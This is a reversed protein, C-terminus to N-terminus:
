ARQEEAAVCHCVGLHSCIDGNCKLYYGHCCDCDKLDERFAADQEKIYGETEMQMICFCQDMDRCFDSATCMYPFGNCCTCDKCEQVFEQDNEEDSDEYNEMMGMFDQMNMNNGGFQNMGFQNMGGFQNMMNQQMMNQQMMNGFQNRGGFQNQQNQLQQMLLMQYQQQMQYNKLIEQQTNADLNAFNIQNNNNVLNQANQNLMSQPQQPQDAQPSAQVTQPEPKKETIINETTEIKKQSGTPHFEMTFPETKKLSTLEKHVSVKPALHNYPCECKNLCNGTLMYMKCPKYTSQNREM